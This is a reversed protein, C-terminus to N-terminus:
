GSRRKPAAPMATQVAAYAKSRRSHAYRDTLMAMTSHRTLGQATKADTKALVTSAYSHRLSHFVIVGEATHRKLFDSRERILKEEQSAGAAIWARRAGERDAEFAEHIDKAMTPFLPGDAKGDVRPRLRDVLWALLPQEAPQKNKTVTAPLLLLPEAVDLKLWSIQTARLESRRLGTAFATLYIDGRDLGSMGQVPKDAEAYAVMEAIEDELVDRRHVKDVNRLAKTNTLPDVPLRQPTAWRTFQRLVALYQNITSTTLKKRSNPEVYAYLSHVLDPLRDRTIDRLREFGGLDICRELRTQTFQLYKANVQNASISTIFTKVHDAIPSNNVYLLRYADDAPMLNAHVQQLVEGVRQARKYAPSEIRGLRETRRRFGPVRYQIQYQIRGHRTTAPFFSVHPVKPTRTGLATVFELIRTRASPRLKMAEVISDVAVVVRADVPQSQVAATTM